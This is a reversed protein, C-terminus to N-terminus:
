GSESRQVRKGRHWYKVGEWPADSMLAWEAMCAFCPACAARASAHNHASRSVIELAGRLAAIRLRLNAVEVLHPSLSIM